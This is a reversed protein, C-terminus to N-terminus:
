FKSTEKWLKNLTSEPQINNKLWNISDELDDEEVLCSNSEIVDSLKRKLNLSINKIEKKLHCYKDYLKGRNPCVKNGIKSYPIFYLIHKGIKLLSM